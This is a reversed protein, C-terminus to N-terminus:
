LLERVYKIGEIFSEAATEAKDESEFPGSCFIIEVDDDTINEKKDTENLGVIGFWDGNKDKGIKTLYKCACTEKSKKNKTKSQTMKNSRM